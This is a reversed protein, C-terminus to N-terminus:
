GDMWHQGRAAIVDGDLITTIALSLVATCCGKRWLSVLAVM